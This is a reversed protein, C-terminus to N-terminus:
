HFYFNLGVGIRTNFWSRDEKRYDSQTYNDNVTRTEYTASIRSYYLRIASFLTLSTNFAYEVGFGINARIPSNLGEVYDDLNSEYVTSPPNTVFLQETEETSFAFQKGIGAQIYASVNKNILKSFYYKIGLTFNVLDLNSTTIYGRDTSDYNSRSHSESHEKDHYSNYGIDATIRLNPFILYSFQGEMASSMNTAIEIYQNGYIGNRPIINYISYIRYYYFPIYYFGFSWDHEEKLYYSHVKPKEQQKQIKELEKQRAAELLLLEQKKKLDKREKLYANIQEATMSLGSGDEYVVGKGWLVLKLTKKLETSTKFYNPGHILGVTEGEVGTVTCPFVRGPKMVITDQYAPNQAFIFLPLILILLAKM